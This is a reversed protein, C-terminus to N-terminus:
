SVAIETYTITEVLIIYRFRKKNGLTIIYQQIKAKVWTPFWKKMTKNNLYCRNVECLPKYTGSIELLDVFILASLYSFPFLM